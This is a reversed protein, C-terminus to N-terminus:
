IVFLSVQHRQDAALEKENLCRSKKEKRKRKRANLLCDRNDLGKKVHDFFRRYYGSPSVRFRSYSRNLVRVPDVFIFNSNQFRYIGSELFVSLEDRALRNEM